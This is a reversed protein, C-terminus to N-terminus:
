FSPSCSPTMSWLFPYYCISVYTSEYHCRATNKFANAIYFEAPCQNLDLTELKVDVTVVGKFELATGISNKGFFPVSYTVVWDNVHGLSDEKEGGCSFYPPSWWGDDEEPARYYLPYLEFKKSSTGNIDSRIMPKETYKTLGYTNSQWREKVERFWREELYAEDLGAKDLARYNKNAQDADDGRKTHRWAYPGFLQRTKGDPGVYKDRDFFIGSGHLKLDGMVNALAEGFLLEINLLKDGRLNGYEEYMDINQLFNSLFHSLRLATRAQNSFQKQVGYAVDGPLELDDMSKEHCNDRTVSEKKRLLDQMREHAKKDFTARKSRSKANTSRKYRAVFVKRKRRQSSEIMEQAKNYSYQLEKLDVSRLFRQQKTLIKSQGDLAKISRKEVKEKDIVPGKAERKEIKSQKKQVSRKSRGIGLTGNGRIIPIVQKLGVPLCEFGREYEEETASEIQSGQFPGRQWPPYRYGPLCVCQYGGRRFGWGYLPECMTSKKCRSIDTLYSKPNGIGAPCPNFDVSLFDIDQVSAATIWHRRLHFWELYRPLHDVIPASASVIWKNSRGCDFYPRTFDVPQFVQKQNQQNQGPFPPGYFTKGEFEDTTFKGTENSYKIGVNYNHKKISDLGKKGWGDPMWKFYWENLKYTDRTYNNQPGAGYDVVDITQNTPERLFNTPENYDDFRFARPGFLLMTHNIAINRYWNPYTKNFEFFIGSGNINYENASVDAAASFYYYMLGPQYKFHHTENLKQFVYSYFFARNLAMNHLHLLNTRNPYIVTSLLRNFQPVQGVTTEPLHLEEKSKSACNEANVADMRQTIEDFKDFKAWSYPSKSQVVVAEQLVVFAFILAAGATVIGFRFTEGKKFREM